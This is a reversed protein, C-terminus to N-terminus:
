VFHELCVVQPAPAVFVFAAPMYMGNPISLGQSATLSISRTPSPSPTRCTLEHSCRERPSTKRIDCNCRASDLERTEFQNIRCMSPSRRWAAGHPSGFPISSDQLSLIGEELSDFGQRDSGQHVDDSSVSADCSMSGVSTDVDTTSGDMPGHKQSLSRFASEMPNRALHLDRPVSFARRKAVPTPAVFHIFTNHVIGRVCGEMALPHLFVSEHACLWPAAACPAAPGEMTMAV